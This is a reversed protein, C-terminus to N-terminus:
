LQSKIDFHASILFAEGLNEIGFCKGIKGMKENFLKRLIFILKQHYNLVQYFNPISLLSMFPHTIHGIPRACSQLTCLAICIQYGSLVLSM